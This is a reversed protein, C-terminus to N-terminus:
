PSAGPCQRWTLALKADKFMWTQNPLGLKDLAALVERRWVEPAVLPAADFDPLPDLGLPDAGALALYAKVFRDQLAPNEFNGKRNEPSPPKTAGTWAGSVALIGAVLSTGSRPLGTVFIPATM